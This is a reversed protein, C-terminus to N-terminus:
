KVRIKLHFPMSTRGDSTKATVLYDHDGLHFSNPTWTVSSGNITPGTGTIAMTMAKGHLDWLDFALTFPQNANAGFVSDITPFFAKPVLGPRMTGQGTPVAPLVTRFGVVTRTSTTPFYSRELTSDYNGGRAVVNWGGGWNWIGPGWPNLSDPVFAGSRYVSLVMEGLNGFMDYLGYSNSLLQGVKSIRGTGRTTPYNAYKSASDPKSKWFHLSDSGGRSAFDWEAETPLRYGRVNPRVSLNQLELTGALNNTFGNYAFVTDLGASKSMLNCYLAALHFSVNYAPLSRSPKASDTWNPMIYMAQYTGRMVSDFHFQTVETRDMDFDNGLTVPTPVIGSDLGSGYIWSARSAPITVMGTPASPLKDVSIAFTVTDTKGRLNLGLKVTEIGTITPTWELRQNALIMGTPHSLLTVVASDAGPGALYLTDLYKVGVHALSTPASALTPRPLTITVLTMSLNVDIQSPMVFVTDGTETTDGSSFVRASVAVIAGFPITADLSHSGYLPAIWDVTPKGDVFLTIRMTDPTASVRRATRHLALSSLRGSSPETARDCGAFGLLSAFLIAWLKM